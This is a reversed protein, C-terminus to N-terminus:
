WEGGRHECALRRSLRRVKAAADMLDTALAGLGQVDYGFADGDLLQVVMHVDDSHRDSPVPWPTQWMTLEILRRPGRSTDVTIDVPEGQHHIEERLLGAPHLGTCWPPCVVTVPGHDRTDIAITRDTM